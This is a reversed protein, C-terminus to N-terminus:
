IKILDQEFKTSMDSYREYTNFRIKQTKIVRSLALVMTETPNKKRALCIREGPRQLNQGILKLRLPM